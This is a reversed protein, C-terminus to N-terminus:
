STMAAYRSYVSFFSLARWFKVPPLFNALSPPPSPKPIAPMLSSISFFDDKWFCTCASRRSYASMSVPNASSILRKVGTVNSSTAARASLTSRASLGNHSSTNTRLPISVHGCLLNSVIRSTAPRMPSTRCTWPNRSTLLGAHTGFAAMISSTVNTCTCYLLSVDCTSHSRLCAGRSLALNCSSFSGGSVNSKSTRFALNEHRPAALYTM